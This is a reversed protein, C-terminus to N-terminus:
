VWVYNFFGNSYCYGIWLKKWLSIWLGWSGTEQTPEPIHMEFCLRYPGPPLVGFRSILDITHTSGTHPNITYEADDRTYGWIERVINWGNVPYILFYEGYNFDKNATITINLEPNAM